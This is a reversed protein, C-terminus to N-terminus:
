SSPSSLGSLGACDDQSIFLKQIIKAPDFLFGVVIEIRKRIIHEIFAQFVTLMYAYFQDQPLEAM